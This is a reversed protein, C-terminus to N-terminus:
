LFINRIKFFDPPIVSEQCSLPLLEQPSASPPKPFYQRAGAARGKRNEQWKRQAGRRRMWTTGKMGAKGRRQGGGTRYVDGSLGKSLVRRAGTPGGSQPTQGSPWIGRKSQKRPNVKRLIDGKLKQMKKKLKIRPVWPKHSESTLLLSHEEPGWQRGGASEVGRAEADAPLEPQQRLYGEVTEKQSYSFICLFFVAHSKGPQEKSKQVDNIEAEMNTGIGKVKNKKLASYVPNHSHIM